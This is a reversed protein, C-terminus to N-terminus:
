YGVGQTAVVRRRHCGRERARQLSLAWLSRETFGFCPWHGSTWIRSGVATVHLKGRYAVRRRALRSSRRRRLVKTPRVLLSMVYADAVATQRARKRNARCAATGSSPMALSRVTMSPERGVGVSAITNTALSDRGRGCDSSGMARLAAGLLGRRCHFRDGSRRAGCRSRPRRKVPANVRPSRSACDAL